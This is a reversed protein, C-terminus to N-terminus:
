SVRFWQAGIDNPMSTQHSLESKVILLFYFLFFLLPMIDGVHMTLKQSLAISHDLRCFKSKAIPPHFWQLISTPYNFFKSSQFNDLVNPLLIFIFEIANKSVISFTRMNWWQTLGSIDIDNWSFYVCESGESCESM